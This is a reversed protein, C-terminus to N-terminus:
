RLREEIRKRIDALNNGVLAYDYQILRRTRLREPTVVGELAAMEPSIVANPNSPSLSMRNLYAEQFDTTLWTNLFSQAVKNVAPDVNANVHAIITQQTAGEEPWAFAISAGARQAATTFGGWNPGLWIDGKDIQEQLTTFNTTWSGINAKHKAWEDIAADISREDKGLAYALAVYQDWFNYHMGVRGAYKPNFLDFWSKPKEVYKPNYAIGYPQVAVAIGLGNKPQLDQNLRKQEPVLAPDFPAFLGAKSGLASFTDNWMGGAERPKDRTVLLKPYHDAATRMVVNITAGPNEKKFAPVAVDRVIDFNGGAFTGIEVAAAQAFARGGILAPAVVASGGLALAQRRNM